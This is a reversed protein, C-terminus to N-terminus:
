STLPRRCVKGPAVARVEEASCEPVSALLRGLAARGRRPVGRAGCGSGSYLHQGARAPWHRRIRRFADSVSRCPIQIRARPPRQSRSRLRPGRVQCCLSHRDSDRCGSRNAPSRDSVNPIRFCAIRIVVGGRAFRLRVNQARWAARHMAFARRGFDRAARARVPDAEPAMRWFVDCAAFPIRQRLRESASHPSDTAKISAALVDRLRHLRRPPGRRICSVIRTMVMLRGGRASAGGYYPLLQRM